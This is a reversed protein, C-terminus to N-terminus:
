HIAPITPRSQKPYCKKERRQNRKERTRTAGYSEQASASRIKTFMQDKLKELTFTFLAINATAQGCRYEQVSAAVNEGMIVFTVTRGTIILEKLEFGSCLLYASEYLDQIKLENDRMSTREVFHPNIPQHNPIESSFAM